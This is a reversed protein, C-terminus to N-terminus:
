IESYRKFDDSVRHRYFKVSEHLTSIFIELGCKKRRPVCRRGDFLCFAYQGNSKVNSIAKKLMIKRSLEIHHGARMSNLKNVNVILSLIQLLALGSDSEQFEELSALTSEIVHWEYSVSSACIPLDDIYGV